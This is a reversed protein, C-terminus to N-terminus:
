WAAGGKRKTSWSWRYAIGVNARTIGWYTGYAEDKKRGDGENRFADYKYNIFGAGLNFELWWAKRKGLGLSYGYGFGLGVAPRNSDQFRDTNKFAVNYGSVSLHIGVFHGKGPRGQSWWRAEPQVSLLRWHNQKGNINYPSYVVPVDLSWSPAFQVEFGLNCTAAAWWLANTKVQIFHYRRSDNAHRKSKLSVPQTLVLSDEALGTYPKGKNTEVNQTTHMLNEGQATQITALVLFLIAISIKSM